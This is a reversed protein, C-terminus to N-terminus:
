KLGCAGEKETKSHTDRTLEDRQENAEEDQTQITDFSSKPWLLLSIESQSGRHGGHSLLSFILLHKQYKQILPGQRRKEKTVNIPPSDNPSVSQSSRKPNLGTRVFDSSIFDYRFRSQRITLDNTQGRINATTAWFIPARSHSAKLAGVVRDVEQVPVQYTCCTQLYQVITIARSNLHMLVRQWSGGFCIFSWSLSSHVLYALFRLPQSSRQGKHLPWIAKM